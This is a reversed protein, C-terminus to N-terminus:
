ELELDELSKMALDVYEGYKKEFNNNKIPKRASKQMRAKAEEMVFKYESRPIWFYDYDEGIKKWDNTDTFIPDKGNSEMWKNVWDLRPGEIQRYREFSAKKMEETLNENIYKTLDTMNRLAFYLQGSQHPDTDEVIYDLRRMTEYKKDLEKLDM